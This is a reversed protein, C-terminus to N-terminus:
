LFVYLIGTTFYGSNPNKFIILPVGGFFVDFDDVFINEGWGNFRIVFLLIMNCFVAHRGGYAIFVIDSPCYLRYIGFCVTSM